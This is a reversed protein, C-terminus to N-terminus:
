RGDLKWVLATTDRLASVLRRGDPSFALASAQAPLGSVGPREKGTATDWLQIKTDTAAVYTKGDASFAVPGSTPGPLLIQRVVKGSDLDWLGLPHEEATSYRTRGDPLKTQIPAGWGGALLLKGDPSVAVNGGNRLETEIKRLQKGTEVEFVFTGPPLALVFRKGDPSFASPGMNMFRMEREHAADDEEPVQVGTPHLRHESLAKGTAVDWVRLYFDDGWSLFRKGDPTFGLTRYGGQRGHGALRYIERGTDVDWLRDTDDLGSTALRRGDPSFAVARVMQYQGGHQLRFRPAGTALDWLRVTGDDSATAVVGGASVVVSSINDHHAEEEDRLPKASALDWIRVGGPGGAALLRSDPSVALRGGGPDLRGRYRGAAPDWLHISSHEQHRAYVTGVVALTKGDPTFVPAGTYSPGSGPPVLRHRLRGGAVDWLRAAEERDSTAALTKGDPSFAVWRAVFEGTPLQRPEAGAQWNWVYLKRTNPGSAVALTSGDPSVALEPLIDRPFQQRLLEVGTAVEEVRLIGNDGMSLLLQGDPTFALACHDTDRDDRPFTRVEKGSAVDLVRAAGEITGNPQQPLFGAVAVRKGDPSMGFGRVSLSDVGITRLLKGTHADWVRLAHGENTATLLSKGDALFAIGQLGWSNQRFRVTGLRALAGPPLPDGYRDTGPQDAGPVLAGMGLLITATITLRTPSM